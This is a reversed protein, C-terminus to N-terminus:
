ERILELIMNEAKDMSIRDMNIILDYNSPDDIQEVDTFFGLFRKRIQDRQRIAKEAETRSLDYNKMMFEIRSDFNQSLLIHKTDPYGRLVFQGGRGIIIMNGKDHIETIIKKIVVGHPTGGEYPNRKKVAPQEAMEISRESTNRGETQNTTNLLTDLWDPVQFENFGLGWTSGSTCNVIIYYNEEHLNEQKYSYNSAYFISIFM